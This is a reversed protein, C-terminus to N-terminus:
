AFDPTSLVNDLSLRVHCASVYCVLASLAHCSRNKLQFVNGLGETTACLLDRSNVINRQGDVFLLDDAQDTFATAALTCGATHYCPQDFGRCPLDEVLTLVDEAHVAVAVFLIAFRHLDDM